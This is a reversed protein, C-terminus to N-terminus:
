DSGGRSIRFRHSELERRPECGWLRLTHEGPAPHILATVQGFANRELGTVQQRGGPGDLEAAYSPCPEPALVLRLPEGAPLELTPAETARTGAKLELSVLNAIPRGRERELRWVWGALGLTLLALAAALGSLWPTPRRVAPAARAQFDRFAARTALDAVEGEPAPEAAALDALELLSATAEPSAALRRELSLRAEEDLRGALYDLLEEAEPVTPTGARDRADEALTAILADEEPSRRRRVPM